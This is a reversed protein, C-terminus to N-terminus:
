RSTAFLEEEIVWARLSPHGDHDFRVLYRPRRLGTQQVREIFGLSGQEVDRDDISPVAPNLWVRDGVERRRTHPWDDPLVRLSVLSWHDPLPALRARLYVRATEDDAAEVSIVLAVYSVQAGGVAGLGTSAAGYACQAGRLEPTDWSEADLRRALAEATSEAAAIGGVLAIPVSLSVEVRRQM